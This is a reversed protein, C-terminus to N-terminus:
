QISYLHKKLAPMTPPLIVPQRKVAMFRAIQVPMEIASGTLRTMIDLQKAPHGTAFVVTPADSCGMSRAAAYAVAGHPDITYFCRSRLDNVTRAITDDDIGAPAAIDARMADLNGGYLHLLRPWGSPRAM